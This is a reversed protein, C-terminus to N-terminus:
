SRRRHNPALAIPPPHPSPPSAEPWSCPTATLLKTKSGQCCAAPPCAPSRRPPRAKIICREHSATRAGEFVESYKGRGVKRVVEYEDQSCRLPAAARASARTCVCWLLPPAGRRAAGRAQDGWTVQLAEYDWYERPATVNVDSYVRAQLAYRM